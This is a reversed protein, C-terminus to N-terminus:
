KSKRAGVCFLTADSRLYLAGNAVAPTALLGEGMKNEAVVEPKDGLKVVTVKGSDGAVFMKDGAIVPSAWIRENPNLRIRVDGLEKGTKADLWRLVTATLGYVRGDHYLPSAGGQNGLKGSKWVVEPTSGDKKLKLAALQGGPVFVMGDGHAPSHIPSAGRDSISWLVKGTRPEFATVDAPTYFIAQAEGDQEVVVPSVWNISRARKVRWLNKGTKTDVGAAFSDIANEMPLLLVDKYLAPSSAMGVQNSVDPYDGVLSRYWLLTGDLDLAALDGTAFLAYVAKGDTVPTPAAMSTTPHCATNGTATFQREWLKKGTQEDLCLVHLRRQKFGSCATVIVKGGTIVPNSLGRGPLSVKWRLGKDPGFEAPIDKDAAVAVSNTGRFGMWDDARGQGVTLGALALSLTLSRM